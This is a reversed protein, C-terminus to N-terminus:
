KRLLDERIRWPESATVGVNMAAQVFLHYGVKNGYKPLLRDLNDGLDMMRGSHSKGKLGGIPEQVLGIHKESIGDIPKQFFHVTDLWISSFHPNNYLDSLIKGMTIPQWTYIDPNDYDHDETKTLLSIKQEKCKKAFEDLFSVAKSEKEPTTTDLSLYFKWRDNPFKEILYNIDVGTNWPKSFGNRINLIEPYSYKKTRIESLNVREETKCSLSTDGGLLAMYGIGQNNDILPTVINRLFDLRKEIEESKLRPVEEPVIRILGNDVNKETNLLNPSLQSFSAASDLSM